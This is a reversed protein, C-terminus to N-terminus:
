RGEKKAEILALDELNAVARAMAPYPTDEDKKVRGTGTTNAVATLTGDDEETVFKAFHVGHSEEWVIYM